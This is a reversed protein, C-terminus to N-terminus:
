SFSITATVTDTYTGGQFDFGQGAPIFVCLALQRPGGNASFMSTADVRNTSTWESGGPLAPCSSLTGSINPASINYNMYYATTPLRLRKQGAVANNGDSLSVFPTAGKNCTLDLTTGINQVFANLAIAAGLNVSQSGVTCQSNVTANITITQASAALPLGLALLGAVMLRISIKMVRKGLETLLGGRERPRM